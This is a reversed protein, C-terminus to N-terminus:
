INSIIVNEFYDKIELKMKKLEEDSYPEIQRYEPNLCKEPIFQQIQFNKLKKKGTVELLWFTIIEIEDLDIYEPVATTRFFYENLGSVLKISEEINDLNVDCGAAKEYNEKSSKIDMAVCDVLKKEIIEKLILPNTGNTDIKILFGKKRLKELFPILEEHSTPEGGSIIIGDILGEVKSVQLQELINNIEEENYSKIKKYKEPIILEHSHCMGCKFNCQSIFFEAALKGPWDIATCKIISKIDLM